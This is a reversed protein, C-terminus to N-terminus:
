KPTFPLDCHKVACASNSTVPNLVFQCSELFTNIRYSREEIEVIHKKGNAYMQSMSKYTFTHESLQLHSQSFTRLHMANIKVYM